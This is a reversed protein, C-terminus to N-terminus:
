NGFEIRWGVNFPINSRIYQEVWLNVDAIRSSPVYVADYPWLTLNQEMNVGYLVEEMDVPIIAFQGPGTRRIVVTHQPSATPLFSGAEFIAQLVTREGKLEIMGPRDVHGGVHVRYATFSRVIVAIEPEELERSCLRELEQRVEEATRGAARVENALPLSIYGDPRVPLDVNHEPTHFFRIELEDGPQIVYVPPEDSPSSVYVEYATPNKPVKSRCGAGLLVTLVVGVLFSPRLPPHLM